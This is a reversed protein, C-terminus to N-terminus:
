GHRVLTVSGVRKALGRGRFNKKPRTTEGGSVRELGCLVGVTIEKVVTAHADEIADTANAGNTKLTGAGPM